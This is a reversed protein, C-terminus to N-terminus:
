EAAEAAEAAAHEDRHKQFASIKIKREMCSSALNESVGGM